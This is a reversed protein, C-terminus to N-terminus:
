CEPRHRRTPVRSSAGAGLTRWYSQDEGGGNHCWKQLRRSSSFSSSSNTVWKIQCNYATILTSCTHLAVEALHQLKTRETIHIRCFTGRELISIYFSSPLWASRAELLLMVAEECSHVCYLRAVFVNAMLQWARCIGYRIRGGHWGQPFAFYFSPLIRPFFTIRARCDVSRKWVGVQKANRRRGLLMSFVAGGLALAPHQLSRPRGQSNNVPLKGDTAPKKHM